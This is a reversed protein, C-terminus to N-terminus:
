PLLSVGAGFYVADRLGAEVHFGFRGGLEVFLGGTARVAPWVKSPMVNPQVGAKRWHPCTDRRADECGPLTEVRRLSGLAFVAGLGGRFMLGVPGVIKRRYIYEFALDLGLLDVETYVPPKAGPADLYWNAAPVMPTLLGVRVGYAHRWTAARLITLDVSVGVLDPIRDAGAALTALTRPVSVQGIDFLSLTSGPPAVRRRRRPRPPKRAPIKPKSRRVAPKALKSPLRAQPAPTPEGPVRLREGDPRLDLLTPPPTTAQAAASPLATATCLLGCVVGCVVSRSLGPM